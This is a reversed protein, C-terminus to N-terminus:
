IYVCIYVSFWETFSVRVRLCMCACVCRAGVCRCVAFVDRAACWLCCKFLTVCCTVLACVLLLCLCLFLCLCVSVFAGCVMCWVACWAGCDIRYTIVGSVCDWVSIRMRTCAHVHVRMCVSMCASKCASVPACCEPRASASASTCM